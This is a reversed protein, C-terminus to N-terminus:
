FYVRVIAQLAQRQPVGYYVTGASGGFGQWQLALDARPWAYRAELWGAWSSTQMDQRWFGSLTLKPVIVDPWHAYLFWQSRTPLDQLAQSAALVQQQVGPSLASWDNGFPAASNYEAEATLSLKFPTTWTLGVAARQQWGQAANQAMAQAVLPLGRGVAGEAFVVVADGLLGSLNLGTQPGIDAGGYVLLQPTFSDSFKYSGAVLYRNEPNTAGANWSFTRTSPSGSGSLRPSFAASLSARDWLRQGQIVVTGQRNERLVVPDPTVVLRLADARFWDTPNYGMAVGNRINVRGFDLAAHSDAQWSVFLERLTNANDGPPVGDSNVGDLRDSFVFRLQPLLQDDFRFDVSGRYLTFNGDGRLRGGGAAGEAFLRWSRAAAPAAATEPAKDALDLADLDGAPEAPPDAATAPGAWLISLLALLPWACPWARLAHMTM